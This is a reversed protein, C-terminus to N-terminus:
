ATVACPKRVRRADTHAPGSRRQWSTGSRPDPMAGDLMCIGKRKMKDLEQATFQHRMLKRARAAKTTTSRRRRTAKLHDQWRLEEELYRQASPTMTARRRRRPKTTPTM